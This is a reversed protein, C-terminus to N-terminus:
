IFDLAVDCFFSYEFYAFTWILGRTYVSHLFFAVIWLLALFAGDQRAFAKTQAVTIIDIMILLRISQLSVAFSHFLLIFFKKKIQIGSHLVM